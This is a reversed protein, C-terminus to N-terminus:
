SDAESGKDEDRRAEDGEVAVVKAEIAVVVVVM